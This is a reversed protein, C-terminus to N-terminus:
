PSPFLNEELNREIYPSNDGIEHKQHTLANIFIKRITFMFFLSVFILYLGFFLGSKKM